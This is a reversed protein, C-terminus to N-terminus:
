KIKDLIQLAIYAKQNFLGLWTYASGLVMALWFFGGLLVGILCVQFVTRPQPDSFTDSNPMRGLMKWLYGFPPCCLAVMLASIVGAMILSLLTRVFIAYAVAEGVQPVAQRLADTVEKTLKTLEIEM